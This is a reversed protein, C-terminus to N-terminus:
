LAGGVCSVPSYEDEKTTVRITHTATDILLYECKSSIQSRLYGDSNVTTAPRRAVLITSGRQVYAEVRPGIVMIPNKNKGHFEIFRSDRGTDALFYGNGISEVGDVVGPGCSTLLLVLVSLGAASLLPSM